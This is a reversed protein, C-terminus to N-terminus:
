AFIVSIIPRLGGDCSSFAERFNRYPTAKHLKVTKGFDRITRHPTTLDGCQSVLTNAGDIRRRQNKPRHRISLGTPLAIPL